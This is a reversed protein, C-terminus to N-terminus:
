CKMWWREGVPFWTGCEPCECDLWEDLATMEEDVM